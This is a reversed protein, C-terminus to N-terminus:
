GKGGKTKGFTYIVFAGFNVRDALGRREAIPSRAADGVLRVYQIAGVASWRESFKYEGFFGVNVDKFGAGADFMTLGTAAAQRATLGYLANMYNRSGWVSQVQIGLGLGGNKYLGSRFDLEGVTGNHGETVDQRLRLRIRAPGFTYGVFGGAELSVPIKGLGPLGSKGVNGRGPDVRLMPGARFGARGLATDSGIVNARVQTEDVALIDRYEFALYPLPYARVNPADDLRSTLVAGVGLRLRTKNADLEDLRTDLVGLLDAAPRAVQAFAPGSLLLFLATLGAGGDFGLGNAKIRATM